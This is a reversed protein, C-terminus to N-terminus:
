TSTACCRPAASRSSRASRRRPQGARRGSLPHRRAARDAPDQHEGVEPHGHGAPPRGAAPHDGLLHRRARRRGGGAARHGARRRPRATARRRAPLAPAGVPQRRSRRARRPLHDAARRRRGRRPRVGDRGRRGAARFRRLGAFAGPLVRRRMGQLAARLSDPDAVDGYVPEGGGDYTDPHRTMARVQHGQELLAPVLQSGVFGSAGTVLVSIAMTNDVTGDPDTPHGAPPM